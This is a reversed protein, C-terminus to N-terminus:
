TSENGIINGAIKQATRNNSAFVFHYIPCNKSNRMELPKDTVQPFINKLRQIYLETIRIIPEEIKKIESEVGFLGNNNVERYFHNRIEEQPMGFFSTLREIHTLKHNNDILRNIIVGSPILIWLDTNTESLKEISSWNVQMGFPDLLTLAFYKKDKKMAEVMLGIQENADNGRFILKLKNDHNLTILKRELENRSKENTEIFYYYVQKIVM